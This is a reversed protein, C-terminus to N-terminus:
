MDVMVKLVLNGEDDKVRAAMDFAKPISELGSYRQTVLKSLDPLHPDGSALLEIVKPYANAYRFVGLLDVEKLSAASIPLTQIPNGMGIIMIKGGPATAYISSQLCSEVGTCEFTVNVEGVTVKEGDVPLLEAGKVREAVSKAYKLKEEITEPRKKEPIPVVVAADAFGNEVAFRVRDAQIDAIVVTAQGKTISKCVAACLLGVAGAGFVLIKARKKTEPESVSVLSGIQARGAAHMAVSLPEALAGMTYDVGEPLKHCWKAPHAVVEQLTGQAHSFQPWGKASSRFRMSRCINYRSEEKAGSPACLECAECPQGVELAVRDGPKLNTVSPGIATIVGSSEHGLTLPEHVQIDGNRFHTYYHLDSGCLGTSKISILVDTPSLTPLPRSEVRLDRAGHLVSAKITSTM